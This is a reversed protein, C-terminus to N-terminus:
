QLTCEPPLAQLALSLSTTLPGPQSEFPDGSARSISSPTLAGALTPLQAHGETHQCRILGAWVVWPWAGPGM